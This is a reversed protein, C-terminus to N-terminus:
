KIYHGVVAAIIAVAIIGGIWWGREATRIKIYREVVDSVAKEFDRTDEHEKVIALIRQRGVEHELVGM